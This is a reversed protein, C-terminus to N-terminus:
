QCTLNPTLKAWQVNNQVWNGALGDAFTINSSFTGTTATNLTRSATGVPVRTTPVAACTPCFGSVQFLNKQLTGAYTGDGIVWRPVGDNDYVYIAEAEFNGGFNLFYSGWGSQDPRLWGGGVSFNGNACVPAGIPQFPESGYQGDLFWSYTFSGTGDFTLIVKGVEQPNDRVGNWTSRYLPASWVGDSATAAAGQATYWIPKGFVDFTYWALAWVQPTKALFVGHGSRSPNFYGNAAPQVINPSFEGVVYVKVTVPETGTNVPTVFYRGPLLQGAEIAILEFGGPVTSRFPQQERPPATGFAPPAVSAVSRSAYLDLSPTGGDLVETRLVLTTQNPPVDVMLRDHAQGPMLVFTKEDHRSNLLMPAPNGPARSMTVQTTAIRENGLGLSFYGLADAGEPVRSQNWGLSLLLNGDAPNRGKLSTVVLGGEVNPVENYVAVKVADSIGSSSFLVLDYVLSKNATWHVDVECQEDADPSTEQCLLADPQSDGNTDEYVYLDVDPATASTARIVLKGDIGNRQGLSAPRGLLFRRREFESLEHTQGAMPRLPWEIVDVEDIASLAGTRVIEVGTTNRTGLDIRRDNRFVVFAGVDGALREVTIPMRTTAVRDLEAHALRIMGNLDTGAPVDSDIRVRIVLDTSQGAALSLQTPTVTLQARADFTTAVSWLGGVNATVRRIFTCETLCRRSYIGPLNLDEPDGGTAPNAARYAAITNTFSLGARVAEAANTMGVGDDLPTAPVITTTGAIDQGPSGTTELASTVQDVTWGPRAAILLAAAGAVAPSSSSTGGFPGYTTGGSQAAWTQPGPAALNPKLVGDFMPVPGRSSYDALLGTYPNPALDSGEIRARLRQGNAAAAVMRQKLTAGDAMSVFTGPIAFPTPSAQNVGTRFTILVIGTAGAAQAHAIKEAFPVNGTDCVVIRGTLSGPAFPNVTGAQTVSACQNAADGFESGLVLEADASGAALGDGDITYPTPVGSGRIDSLRTRVFRDNRNAAVTTNWPLSSPLAQVTARRPGANGASSIVVIGAERALLFANGVASTWPSEAHYGGWSNNLVDVGDLVAQNVAAPVAGLTNGQIIKYSVINARPAVGAFTTELSSPASPLAYVVPNGAARSAVATGHGGSDGGATDGTGGVFDHIGILKDNCKAAATTLCLGLRQGRPNSHRYGDAAVEAFAPHTGDIGTDLIGIVVGEGKTALVNPIAGQWLPEAGVTRPTAFDMTRVPFDPEVRLVDPHKAIRAATTADVDVAFGNGILDWRHVPKLSKGVRLNLEHLVRNQQERLYQRYARVPPRDPDFRGEGNRPATPPLKLSKGISSLQNPSEFALAAPEKLTVLYGIPTTTPAQVDKGSGTTEAIEDQTAAKAGIPSWLLMLCLTARYPFKM